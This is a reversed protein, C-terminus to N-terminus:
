IRFIYSYSIVFMCNKKLSEYDGMDLAERAYKIRNSFITRILICPYDKIVNEILNIHNKYQIYKFSYTDM